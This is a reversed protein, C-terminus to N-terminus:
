ERLLSIFVVYQAQHLPLASPWLCVNRSFGNKNSLLVFLFAISTVCITGGLRIFLYAYLTFSPVVKM